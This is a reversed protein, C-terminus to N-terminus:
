SVINTNYVLLHKHIIIHSRLALWRLFHFLYTILLLGAQKIRYKTIPLINPLFVLENKYSHAVVSAILALIVSLIVATYNEISITMTNWASLLFVSNLAICDVGYFISISCISHEASHSMFFFGCIVAMILGLISILAISKRYKNM